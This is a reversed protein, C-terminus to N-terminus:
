DDLKKVKLKYIKSPKFLSFRYVGDSPANYQFNLSTPDCFLPVADNGTIIMRSDLSGCIQKPSWNADAIKFDYVTGDALLPIDVVWTDDQTYIFRYSEQAGWWNFTGRVFLAEENLSTAYPSSSLTPQLSCGGVVLVSAVIYIFRFTGNLM